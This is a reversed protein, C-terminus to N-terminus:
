RQGPGPMVVPTAQPPAAQALKESGSVWQEMLMTIVERQKKKSKTCCRRFKMALGSEIWYPGIQLVPISEAM